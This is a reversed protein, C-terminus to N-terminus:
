QSYFPKVSIASAAQFSQPEFYYRFYGLLQMERYNRANDVGFLGGISMRELIRYEVVGSFSYGLGSSSQSAYGTQLKLTPEQKALKLLEEQLSNFGPYFVNGDERFSQVGLAAKLNYSLAGSRGSWEIPVSLGLFIKPSFYGGQGFSFYRLNKDFSLGTLNIGYTLKQTSTEWAHKYAGGGFSIETNSDVNHGDLTYFGADGYLGFNGDDYVVDGRGGTRSVGGWSKGTIPDVEGAYSLLSETVARRSLDLTLRWNGPNFNAKAGGILRQEQFGLPTTGVDANLWGYSYNFDFASGGASSTPIAQTPPNNQQGTVLALTGYQEKDTGTAKGADLMVPTVDLGFRGASTERSRWQIPLEIDALQSLGGQGARSRLAFAGAVWGSTEAELRQADDDGERGVAAPATSAPQGLAALEARSLAPASHLRIPGPSPAVWVGRGSGGLRDLMGKIGTAPVLSPAVGSDAGTASLTRSPAALAIEAARPRLPGTSPAVGRLVDAVAEPLAHDPSNPDIWALQPLVTDQANSAKGQLANARRYDNLADGHRGEAEALRASARWWRVDNPHADRGARVVARADEVDNAALRTDVFGLQVEQNGPDRAQLFRYIASAKEYDGSQTLLRATAMQVRADDPYRAIVDRLQLYAGALDGNQRQRDALKVRYGVVMDDLTQQQKANLIATTQLHDAVVEFEGDQQASLLMGAYQVQLDPEASAGGYAIAKRMTGVARASDGLKAWGAAVAAVLQPDRGAGTNAQEVIAYAEAVRRAAVAQDARQLQYQVWARRQLSYSDKNRQAPPLSELQQLVQGWRGAEGDAYAQAMRVEPVDGQTAMLGALLSDAQEPHGQSRYVGALDLRIWPSEPALLLAQELDAQAAAFNGQERETAAKARLNDARIGSLQNQVQVPARESLQLAEDRRGQKSLLAVLSRLADPNDPQVRLVEKLLREAQADKQREILVDAYAVSLADPADAPKSSFAATYETEAAAADGGDRALKAKRIHEWFSASRLAQDWNSAKAPQARQAERLLKEADAYQEQRLRLIGLAGTVDANDPYQKKLRDLAADAAVYDGNEMQSYIPTLEVSKAVAARVPNAAKLGNLRSQLEGDAGVDSLYSSYRGADEPKAQLWILAQRLAPRADAAVAANKSLKSLQDVGDRRTNERYTLHKAYALAYQPDSSHSESLKKLEERAKEWGGPTAGLTQYYELAFDENPSEGNFLKQYEAIAGPYDRAAALSRARSLGGSIKKNISEKQATLTGQELASRARVLQPSNPAAAGLRELYQRAEVSHGSDLALETLRELADANNPQAGLVRLWAEQARGPQKHADWFRGQEILKQLAVNEEAHATFVACLVALCFIRVNLKAM